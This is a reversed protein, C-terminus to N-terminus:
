RMKGLPPYTDFSTFTKHLTETIDSPLDNTKDVGTAPLTIVYM